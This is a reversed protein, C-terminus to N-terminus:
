ESLLQGTDMNVHLFLIMLRKVKTLLILSDWHSVGMSKSKFMVPFPMKM